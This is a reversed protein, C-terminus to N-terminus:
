DGSEEAPDEESALCWLIQEREANASAHAGVCVSVDVCAHAYM